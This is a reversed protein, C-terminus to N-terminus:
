GFIEKGPRHVIEAFKKMEEEKFDYLGSLRNSLSSSSMGMEKAVDSLKIDDDICLLKIKKRIEKTVRM